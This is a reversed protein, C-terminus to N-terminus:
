PRTSACWWSARAPTRTPCRRSACTARATCCSRACAASAVPGRPTPRRRRGSAHRTRQGQGRLGGRGVGVVQAVHDLAVELPEVEGGGIGDLAVSIAPCRPAPRPWAGSAAPRRCACGAPGPARWRRSGRRAARAAAARRPPGRARGCRSASGRRGGPWPRRRGAGRGAWRGRPRRRPCRSGRRRRARRRPRGGPPRAGARRASSTRSPMRSSILRAVPRPRCPPRGTGRGSPGRGRARRRRQAADVGQLGAAQDGARDVAGQHEGPGLGLHVGRQPRKARSSPSSNWITSSMRSTSPESASRPLATPASARRPM